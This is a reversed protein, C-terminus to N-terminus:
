SYFLSCFLLPLSPSISSLLSLLTPSFPSFCMSLQFLPSFETSRQFSKLLKGSKGASLHSTLLSGSHLVVCTNQYPISPHISTETKLLAQDTSLHVYLPKSSRSIRKRDPFRVQVVDEDLGMMHVNPFVSLFLYMWATLATLDDVVVNRHSAQKWGWLNQM